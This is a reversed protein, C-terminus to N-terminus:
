EMFSTSEAILKAAGITVVRKEEYSTTQPMARMESMLIKEMVM